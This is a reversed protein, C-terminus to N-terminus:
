PSITIARARNNNKENIESVANNADARSIIYYTGATTGSPITVRARGLSTAGSTLSPISRSGLLIDSAEYTANTSLYYKTTSAGASTTGQNKTTDSITISQGATATSPVSLASIILDPMCGEDILGDCDNDIGDCVETQPTGPTCTDVTSGNQCILEGTLLCVGMGCTTPTPIYGDDAIGNCNEDIGNCNDDNGTPQGPQCTDILLGNQCILEGTAQCVGVGCTTPIPVYDNDICLISFTGSTASSPIVVGMTDTLKTFTFNLLTSDGPNGVVNFVLGALSGSGGSLGTLSTDLGGVIIQGATNINTTIMWGTTLNGGVAGTARLVSLDYTITFQFGAIGAANDVMVPIEIMVGADVQTDPISVVASFASVPLFMAVCFLLIEWRRM